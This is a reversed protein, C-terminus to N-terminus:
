DFAYECVSTPINHAREQQSCGDPSLLTKRELNAATLIVFFQAKEKRKFSKSEHDTRKM